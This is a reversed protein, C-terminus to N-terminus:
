GLLCGVSCGVVCGVSCGVRCGDLWGVDGDPWGVDRGVDLGDNLAADNVPYTGNKTSCTDCVM